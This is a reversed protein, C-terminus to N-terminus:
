FLWISQRNFMKGIKNLSNPWNQALCMSRTETGSGAPRPVTHLARSRAAGFLTPRAPHWRSSVGSGRAGATVAPSPTENGNTEEKASVQDLPSKGAARGCVAPELRPPQRPGPHGQSGPRQREPVCGLACGSPGDTGVARSVSGALARRSHRGGGAGPERRRPGRVRGERVGATGM